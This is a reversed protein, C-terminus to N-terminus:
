GQKKLWDIMKKFTSPGAEGDATLGVAKQFAAVATKTSAGYDNDIKNSTNNYINLFKQVIGVRTGISKLKMQVGDDVLKQLENILTQNKYTTTPKPTTSTPKPTPVIPTQEAPVDTAGDAVPPQLADLEGQLSEVEKKLDENEAKLAKIKEVNVHESGSQMTTVAWYGLLVFIALSLVSFLAFKFKEM